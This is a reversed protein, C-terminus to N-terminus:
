IKPKLALQFPNKKPEIRTNDRLGCSPEHGWPRDVVSSAVLSKKHPMTSIDLFKRDYMKLLNNIKTNHKQNIMSIISKMKPSALWSSLTETEMENNAFCRRLMEINALLLEQVNNEIIFGSIHSSIIDAPLKKSLCAYLNLVKDKFIQSDVISLYTAAITKFHNDLIEPTLQEPINEEIFILLGPRTINFASLALKTAATLQNHHLTLDNLAILQAPINISTLRNSDLHLSQLAILEVSINISILQNRSLGLWQLDILTAPIDISTLQNSNLTLGQLAILTAPINISTLQNRSLGLEQLAILTAPINISTLQNRSLGLEQLAILTAPINISTLQNDSLGLEQLAILTAPINISTLQNNGCLEIREINMAIEPANRLAQMLREADANNLGTDILSISTLTADQNEIREIYENLTTMKEGKIV